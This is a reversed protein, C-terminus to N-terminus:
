RKTPNRAQFEAAAAGVHLLVMQVREQPTYLAAALGSSTETLGPVLKEVILIRM